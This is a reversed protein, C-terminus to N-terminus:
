ATNREASACPNRLAPGNYLAQGQLRFAWAGCLVCHAISGPELKNTEKWYLTGSKPQDMVHKHVMLINYEADSFPLGEVTSGQSYKRQNAYKM